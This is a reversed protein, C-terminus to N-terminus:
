YNLMKNVDNLEGKVKLTYLNWLSLIYFDSNEKMIKLNQTLESNEVVSDGNQVEKDVNVDADTEKQWKQYIVEEQTMIM